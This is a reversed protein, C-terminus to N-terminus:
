ASRQYNYVDLLADVINHADRFRQNKYVCKRVEGTEKQFAIRGFIKSQMNYFSIMLITNGQGDSYLCEVKFRDNHRATIKRLLIELDELQVM